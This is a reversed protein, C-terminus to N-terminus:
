AYKKQGKEEIKSEMNSVKVALGEVIRAIRDLKSELTEDQELREECPATPAVDRVEAVGQYPEEMFPQENISPILESPCGPEHQRCDHVNSSPYYQGHCGAPCHYRVAAHHGRCSKHASAGYPGVCHHKM